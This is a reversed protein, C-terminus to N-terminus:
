QKHNASHAKLIKVDGMLQNIMQQQQEIIQQQEQVAKVLPVVFQSYRLGYYDEGNEPKDIGSFEFGLQQATKEVDQAIFGTERKSSRSESDPENIGLFRNIKAVDLNYSVPKLKLIFDLGKVDEKIASKFRRDSVNTWDAFGGISSVASNGIRIQNSATISAQYGIATSNLRSSTTSNSASVGVFTCNNVNGQNGSNAGVAVNNHGSTVEMLTEIGIATNKYGSGNQNLARYGFATNNTGSSNGYLAQSGMGTNNYGSVNTYLAEFGVATNNDSNNTYLAKSGVATNSIGTDNAYLVNFGTGTNDQGTSNSFLAQAGLASNNSGSTNSKLAEIGLASNNNGGDDAMGSQYGVFLSSSDYIADSLDNLETVGTINQWSGTGTSDSTLVKGAGPNGGTIKITGNIYVEDLAFDGGILPATTDSNEIYLKNSETEDRGANYGIFVCLDRSNNFVGFGSGVGIITNGYGTKNYFDTQYGIAVNGWGSTISQGTATGIATNSNGTTHRLTNRGIATNGAGTAFELANNGLGTNDSGTQNQSLASNGVAVNFMGTTIMSGAHAGIAVNYRNSFANVGAQYGIYVDTDNEIVNVLNSLHISDWTSLGSSDSLLYKGSAPNGGTIKITGNIDVRDVAFDGGILPTSSSSNEIYLKNDSTENYGAGYGLFVSGSRSNNMSGVGALTGIITNNSGTQNFYNSQHGLTVNGEGTTNNYSSVFGLSINKQGTTNHFLGSNGLSINFDGTQNSYLVANGLAINMNGTSNNFLTNEGFALNSNGETNTSLASYGAAINSGGTINNQLAYPGLAINYDGSTNDNGANYGIFVNQNNTYDDHLGAYKGIFVSNGNNLFELHGKKFKFFSTDELTLEAYDTGYFNILEFKSDGNSDVLKDIIGSNLKNFLTGDWYYFFSDDNNFILLGKESIGINSALADKQVSTLRPILLGKSDSSIDLMSHSNAEAGITNIAVQGNANNCIILIFVIFTAITNKM